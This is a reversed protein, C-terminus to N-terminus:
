SKKTAVLKSDRRNTGAAKMNPTTFPNKTPKVSLEPQNQDIYNTLALKIRFLRPPSGCASAFPPSMHKLSSLPESSKEM